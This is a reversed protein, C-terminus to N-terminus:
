PSRQFVQGSRDEYILEWEYAQPPVVGLRLARRHLVAYDPVPRDGLAPLGLPYSNDEQITLHPHAILLYYWPIRAVYVTGEEIERQAYDIINEYSAEDQVAFPNVLIRAREHDLSLLEPPNLVLVVGFAAVLVLGSAAYRLSRNAQVQDYLRLLLPALLALVIVAGLLPLHLAYRWEIHPATSQPTHFAGLPTFLFAIVLAVWVLALEWGLRQTVVLLVFILLMGAFGLLLWSSEAGSTYLLPNGLNAAISTVSFSAIEPSVVQGMMVYNRIVWLGGPFMLLLALAFVLPHLFHTAKGARYARWWHWLVLLWVPTLITVGTAKTAIAIMTAYAMGLPHLGRGVTGIPAHLLAVLVMTSLLLDNKGILLVQGYFFPLFLLAVACALGLPLPIGGYRLLLLALTWVLLLVTWAQVLGAWQVSGTLLYFFSLISEYGNSYQGYPISLNWLTGSHALDIVRVAHYSFFDAPSSAALESYPWAIMRFLFVTVLLGIAGILLASDLSSWPRAAASSALEAFWDSGLRFYALVALLSLLVSMTLAAPLTHAGLFGLVQASWVLGFMGALLLAFVPLIIRRLM